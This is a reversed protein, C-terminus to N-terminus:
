VAAADVDDQYQLNEVEMVVEVVQHTVLVVEVVQHFVVLGVVAM